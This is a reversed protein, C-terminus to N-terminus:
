SELYYLHFEDNDYIKAYSEVSKISKLKDVDLPNYLFNYGQISRSSIVVYFNKFVSRINSPFIDNWSTFNADLKYYYISQSYRILLTRETLSRVYSGDNGYPYGVGQYLHDFLFNAGAIETPAVFDTAENGYANVISLPPAVILVALFIISLYKNYILKAALTNFLNFSLSFTRSIIEGSYATLLTISSNSVIWTPVLLDKIKREKKIFFAYIFGIGALYLLLGGSIIRILVAQTHSESGSFGMQTTQAALLGMNFLSNISGTINSISYSGAVYVQFAITMGLVLIFKIIFNLTNDWKGIKSMNFIKKIDIGLNKSSRNKVLGFILTLLAFFLLAMVLSVSSLFHSVIAAASFIIFIIWTAISARSNVVDFRLVTIIALNIMLTGLVGPVFYVPSGFFLVNTLLLAAWVARKQLFTSFVLYSVLINIYFFIMSAMLVINVTDVNNIYSFISGFYFIGPWSQYPIVTNNSHGFQMIFDINTSSHFNGYFRPTGEFLVPILSIFIILFTTHLFLLKTNGINNKITYFFSITLISIAVFYLPNLGSIIGYNGIDLKSYYIAVTWTIISLSLLFTSLESASLSFNNGFNPM